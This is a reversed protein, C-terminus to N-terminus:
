FERHSNAQLYDRLEIPAFSHFQRVGDDIADEIQQDTYSSLDHIEVILGAAKATAIVSADAGNPISIARLNYNAVLDNIESVTPESGPNYIRMLMRTDYGNDDVISLANAGGRILVQEVTDTDVITDLIRQLVTSNSTGSKLDFKIMIKDKAALLFEELTPIRQDSVGGNDYTLYLQDLIGIDKDNLTDTSSCILDAVASCNTLNNFDNDHFVVLTGDRLVEIDSEYLDFGKSVANDINAISNGPIGEINDFEKGGRHAAIFIHQSNSNEYAVLVQELRSTTSEQLVYSIIPPLYRAEQALSQSIGTLVLVLVGIKTFIKATPKM